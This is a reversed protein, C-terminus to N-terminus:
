WSGPPKLWKRSGAAGDGGIIIDAGGNGGSRFRVVPRRAVVGGQTQFITWSRGDLQKRKVRPRSSLTSIDSPERTSVVKRWSSTV